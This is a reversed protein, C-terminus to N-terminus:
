DSASPLRGRLRARRLGLGSSVVDNSKSHVIQGRAGGIYMSLETFGLLKKQAQVVQYLWNHDVM